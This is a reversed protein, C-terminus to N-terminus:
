WDQLMDWLARVDEELRAIRSNTIMHYEKYLELLDQQVKLLDLMHSTTSSTTLHLDDM